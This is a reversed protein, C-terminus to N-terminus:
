SLKSLKTFLDAFIPDRHLYHAYRMLHRSTDVSWTVQDTLIPTHILTTKVWDSNILYAITAVDWIVKSWGYPNGEYSAVIDALYNCLENKDRLYHELEAITTQLHTTVGECPILTVPVGCDFLIQAGAVDQKLNFEKTQSWHLANGGLWVVVIKEIIRPEIVIANAINTIAAIAVVYLPDDDPSAMAREILDQVADSNEPTTKDFYRTSGKFVFGDASHHPMMKLLHLIEEYSREMGDNAGSSRSNHFPAAYIAEVHLREPSLLAHALAFQDDVENYTDTDLVMRLVGSKPHLRQVRKAEPIVPFDMM